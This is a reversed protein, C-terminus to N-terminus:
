HNMNSSKTNQFISKYAIRMQYRYKSIKTLWKKLFIIIEGAPGCCCSHLSSRVSLGSDVEEDLLAESSEDNLRM